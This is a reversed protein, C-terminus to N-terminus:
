FNRQRASLILAGVTYSTGPGPIRHLNGCWRARQNAIVRESPGGFELKDFRLVIGLPDPFSRDCVLNTVAQGGASGAVVQGGARHAFELLVIRKQFVIVM